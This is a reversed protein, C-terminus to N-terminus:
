DLVTYYGTNSLGLYFLIRHYPNNKISFQVEVNEFLFSSVTYRKSNTRDEEEVFTSIQCIGEGGVLEFSVLRMIKRYPQILRRFVITIVTSGTL